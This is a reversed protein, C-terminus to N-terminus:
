WQMATMDDIERLYVGDYTPFSSSLEGLLTPAVRILVSREMRRTKRKYRLFEYSYAIASSILGTFLMIFVAVFPKVTLSRASTDHGVMMTTIMKYQEGDRQTLMWDRGQEKFGHLVQENWKYIIGSEKYRAGIEEWAATYVSHKQLPISIYFPFFLEGRENTRYSQFTASLTLNLGMAVGIFSLSGICLTKQRFAAQTVCKAADTELELRSYLSSMVKDNANKFEDLMTSGWHHFILRYDKMEYVEELNRPVPHTEPFTLSTMLKEKYGSCLIVTSLLWISAIIRGGHHIELGQEMSTAFPFMISEYLLMSYNPKKSSRHTERDNSRAHSSLSLYFTPIFALFTVALSIWLTLKFPRILANWRVHTEPHALVFLAREHFVFTTYDLLPFSHLTPRICTGMDKRKYLIDGILGVWTGNPLQFGIPKRETSMDYTFNYNKSAEEFVKVFTGGVIKRERNLLMFPPVALGAVTLYVGNLNIKRRSIELWTGGKTAEHDYNKRTCSKLTDRAITLDGSDLRLFFKWKLAALLSSELVLPVSSPSDIIFLFADRSPQLVSGLFKNSDTPTRLIFLECLFIFKYTHLLKTQKFSNSHELKLSILYPETLTFMVAAQWLSFESASSPDTIFHFICATSVPFLHLIIQSDTSITRSQTLMPLSAPM